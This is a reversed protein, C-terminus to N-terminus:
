VPLRQVSVNIGGTRCVLYKALGRSQVYNECRTQLEWLARDLPTGKEVVEVKLGYERAKAHRIIRGHSLLEGEKMFCEVTHEIEQAGKGRLMFQGLFEGAVTRALERAKLCVQIWTPDM